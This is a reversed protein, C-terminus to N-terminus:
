AAERSAELQIGAFLGGFLGFMDRAMAVIAAQDAPDEIGNMVREFFKLHNADIAGHSTLYRFAERPLSLSSRVAEAGGTAMAVSTGELVYIMGFFAVPNGTRITAYAHDVM